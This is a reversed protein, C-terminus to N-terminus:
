LVKGQCTEVIKEVIDKPMPTTLTTGGDTQFTAKGMWNNVTRAISIAILEIGVEKGKPQNSDKGIFGQQQKKHTTM